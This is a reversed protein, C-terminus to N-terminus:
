KKHGYDSPNEGWNRTDWKFVLDSSVIDLIDDCERILAFAHHTEHGLKLASNIERKKLWWLATMSDSFIPLTSNNEHRYLLAFCIAFYEGLNNTCIGKVEEDFILEGTALDLGRFYTKGPNGGRQGCDVCIGFEPKNKSKYEFPKEYYSM